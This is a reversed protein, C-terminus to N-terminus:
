KRNGIEARAARWESALLDLYIGGTFGDDSLDEWAFYGAERYGQKRLAALSRRNFESVWAYVM